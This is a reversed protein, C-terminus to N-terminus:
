CAGEAHIEGLYAKKVMDNKLLDMPKGSLVIAGTQLVYGLDSVDFAM